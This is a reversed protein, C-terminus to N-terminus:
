GAPAFDAAVTLRAEGKTFPVTGHWMYSPFIVMQGAAPKIYREPGLTPTTACGPEGFKLWGAKSDDPDDAAPRIHCASSLWGDPHVHNVHFGNPPLSVSWADLLSPAGANRSRLPDDGAGIRDTYAALPGRMAEAYARMVPNESKTISPLQSGHRVSLFFPHERHCHADTLATSLDNLYADLTAWGKPTDLPAAVVMADYDFLAHYRDDGLLRWATAQLAIFYQNAPQRARLRDIVPAAASADGLALLATVYVAVTDNNEPAADAAIKAFDHAAAYEKCALAARAAFHCVQPDKGAVRLVNQLLSYQKKSDGMQGSFEARLVQLTLNEPQQAIASVIAAEAKDPDGTRMWVLQALERHAMGDDSRRALVARYATEAREHDLLGSLARAHVLYAEPRDLGDTIVQEVIKAAEANQGADGLAAALNYRYILNDSAVAVVDRWADIADSVRGAKRHAQAAAVLNELSTTM